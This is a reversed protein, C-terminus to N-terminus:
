NGGPIKQFIPVFIVSALLLWLIDFLSAEEENVSKPLKRMQRILPKTNSSVEDIGGTVIDLQLFLQNIRKARNTYFAIMYYTYCYFPDYVSFNSRQFRQM